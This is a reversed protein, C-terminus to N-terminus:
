RIQFDKLSITGVGSIIQNLQSLSTMQLISFIILTVVIPKSHLTLLELRIHEIQFIESDRKKHFPVKVLKLKTRSNSINGTNLLSEHILFVPYKELVNESM